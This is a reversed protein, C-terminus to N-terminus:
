PLLKRPSWFPKQFNERFPGGYGQGSTNEREIEALLSSFDHDKGLQALREETDGLVLM